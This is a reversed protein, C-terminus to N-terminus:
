WGQWKRGKPAPRNILLIGLAVMAGSFLISPGVHEDLILWGLLIGFVPSLFAFSAVGSAPYITLLWLWFLFAATTVIVIQFALAWLHLQTLERILPGFLPSIALLVVASVSVQWFLQMEPNVRVLKTGRAILAIGAWCIAGLLAGLDGILSTDGVRGTDRDLIAWAVGAFAVGLGIAKTRHIRDNPLFFHAAIAMWVPMSNFIISTRTVSSLDLATFLGVFELSFLLGLILGPVVTGAQFDLTRGRFKIWLWVCITAGLSRIGAFFMPQLGDTVVKIVVQNFALLLAFLVLIIAGSTDINDRKTM